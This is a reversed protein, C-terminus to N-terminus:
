IQVNELRQKRKEHESMANKGSVDSRAGPLKGRAVTTKDEAAKKPKFKGDRMDKGILNDMIAERPANFGKARMQALQEEVRAEYRKFLAPNKMAITAFSTKDSIDQAQIM